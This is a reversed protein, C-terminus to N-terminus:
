KAESDPPDSQDDPKGPWVPRNSAAQRKRADAIIAAIDGNFKEAIQRRIKHIEEVIPDRRIESNM